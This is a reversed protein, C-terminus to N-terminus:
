NENNTVLNDRRLEEKETIDVDKAKGNLGAKAEILELELKLGSQRLVETDHEIASLSKATDAEVKEIEKAIKENELTLKEIVLRDSEEKVPDSSNAAIEEDSNINENPNLGMSETANRYVDARKVIKSDLPNNSINLLNILQANQVEKAILSKLGLARVKVDIGGEFSEAFWKLNFQYLSKILPVILYDDINKVPTNKIIDSQGKLISLGTATRQASATGTPAFGSGSSPMNSEDDIFKRFLEIVSRLENILTPIKTARVVPFALDGTTTLFIKGNYIDNVTKQARETLHEVSIEFIVGATAMDDILRRTAANLIEQSDAITEPVGAGWIRNAEKYHPFIRWPYFSEGVEIDTALRIEHFITRNSSIYAEVAYETTLNEPTVGEFGAMSLELGNLYGKYRLVEYQMTNPIIDDRNYIHMLDHEWQQKVHNGRPNELVITRIKDGDFGPKNALAMFKRRNMIMREFFGSMSDVDPADPDPYADFPSLYRIKPFVREGDTTNVIDVEGSALIGSGLVTSDLVANRFLNPYDIETLQDDILKKMRNTDEKIVVKLEEAAAKEPNVPPAQGQTIDQAAVQNVVQGESALAVQPNVPEPVPTPTIEWHKVGSGPFFINIEHSYSELAKKNTIGLYIKSKNAKFNQSIQAEYKSKFQRLNKLWQDEQRRRAQSWSFWTSWLFTGLRDGQTKSQNDIETSTGNQNNDPM